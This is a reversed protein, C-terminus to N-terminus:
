LAPCPSVGRLTCSVQWARQAEASKGQAKLANAMGNWAEFKQPFFKVAQEYDHQAAAYMKMKIYLSGRNNLVYGDGPKLELARNFAALSAEFAGISKLHTGLNYYIRYASLVDVGPFSSEYVNAAEFWILVPNSFTKLRQMSLGVFVLGILFVSLLAVRVRVRRVAVALCVFIFPAWLYSRYIVFPEQVRVSSFETLFMVGPILLGVGLLGRVGGRWLLFMSGVIYITYAAAGLWLKWDSLSSPFVQKIDVSISGPLILGWLSIYKFFLGAQNLISKLYLWDVEEGKLLEGAQAEYAAGIHGGFNLVLLLSFAGVVFLAGLVFSLPMSLLLGSRWRLVLMLFAAAPLMVAHEKAYMSLVSFVCFGLLALLSGSLARWFALLSLIFFLTAAIITSQILYGQTFISLPHVVFLFAALCAAVDVSVPSTIRQDIDRLVERIFCALVLAVCFHLLFNGLRLWAVGGDFHVYTAALAQYVWWRPALSFGQELFGVPGQPSFFNLDDFFLPNDLFPICLASAVLFLLAIGHWFKFYIKM